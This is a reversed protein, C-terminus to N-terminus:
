CINRLKKNEYSNFFYSHYFLLNSKGNYTKEVETNLRVALQKSVTLFAKIILAANLLKGGDIATAPGTHSSYNGNNGEKARSPGPRDWVVVLAEM